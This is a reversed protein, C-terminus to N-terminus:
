KCSNCVGNIIDKFLIELALVIQNFLWEKLHPIGGKASLYAEIHHAQHLSLRISKHADIYEEARKVYWRLSAEKVRCTRSIDIYKEWFRDISDDM